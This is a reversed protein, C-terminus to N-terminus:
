SNRPPRSFDLADPGHLRNCDCADPVELSGRRNRASPGCLSPGVSGPSATRLSDPLSVAIASSDGEQCRARQSISRSPRACVPGPASLCILPVLIHNDGLDVEGVLETSLPDLWLQLVQRWAGQEARECDANEAVRGDGREGANLTGALPSDPAWTSARQRGM